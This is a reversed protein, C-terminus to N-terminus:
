KSVSTQFVPRSLTYCALCERSFLVCSHISCDMFHLFFQTKVDLKSSLKSINNIPLYIIVEELNYERISKEGLM